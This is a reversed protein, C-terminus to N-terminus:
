LGSPYLILVPDPLYGAVNTTGTAVIHWLLVHQLVKNSYNLVSQTVTMLHFQGKHHGEPYSHQWPYLFHDRCIHEM